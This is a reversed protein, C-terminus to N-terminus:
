PKGETEDKLLDFIDREKKPKSASREGLSEEPLQPPVNADKRRAFAYRESRGLSQPLQSPLMDRLRRLLDASLAFVRVTASILSDTVQSRSLYDSELNSLIEEKLKLRKAAEGLSLNLRRRAQRVTSGLTDQTEQAAAVKPTLRNLLDNKLQSVFMPDPKLGDAIKDLLEIAKLVHLFAERDSHAPLKALYDELRPNKGSEKEEVFELALEEANSM